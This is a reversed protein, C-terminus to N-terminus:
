RFNQRRVVILRAIRKSLRKADAIASQAKEQPVLGLRLAVHLQSRVEGCSGRAIDLFHVFEANSSREYDEAINSSISLAARQIQDRFARNRAGRFIDYVLVALEVAGQWVELKEFTGDPALQIENEM